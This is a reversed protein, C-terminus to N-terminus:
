WGSNLNFYRPISDIQLFNFVVKQDDFIRIIVSELKTHSVSLLSIKFRVTHGLSTKHFFYERKKEWEHKDLCNVKDKVISMIDDYPAGNIRRWLNIKGKISLNLDIEHGSIPRIQLINAGRRVAEDLAKDLVKILSEKNNDIKESKLKNNEFHYYSKEKNDSFFNGPLEPMQILSDPIITKKVHIM